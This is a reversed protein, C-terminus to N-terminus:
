CCLLNVPFQLPQEFLTKKVSREQLAAAAAICEEQVAPTFKKSLPAKGVHAVLREVADASLNESWGESSL